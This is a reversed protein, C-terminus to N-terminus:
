LSDLRGFPSCAPSMSASSRTRRLPNVNSIRSCVSLVFSSLRVRSTAAKAKLNEPPIAPEVAASGFRIPVISANVSIGSLIAWRLIQDKVIASSVFVVHARAVVTALWDAFIEYNRHGVLQPLEIPIIDHVLVSFRIGDESLRGFLDRYNRTWVVGTFLVHDGRRPALGTGGSRAQSPHRGVKEALISITEWPSIAVLTGGDDSLVCPLDSATDADLSAFFLEVTVKGVGTLSEHAQLWELTDGIFFWNAAAPDIDRLAHRPEPQITTKPSDSTPHTAPELRRRRMTQWARWRGLHQLTVTRWALKVARGLTRALRPYRSGLRRPFKTLRWSTSSLVAQLRQESRATAARLAGIEDGQRVLAAQLAALQKDREALTTQHRAVLEDRDTAARQRAEALLREAEELRSAAAQALQTAEAARREAAVGQAEIDHAQTEARVRLDMETDLDSRHVYVSNPLPPLDGDSALAIIYPARSLHNSAEVHTAGRRDFVRPAIDQASSLTLSGIIARQVALNAHKFHRHLLAEFEAKTLELVHYPNPPTGPSSYIDRDPSSMILLGGPRLVRHLEGIFTEHELIHELTEFSVAVDVSGDALPLARADGQEYRLHPQRFESRAVAVAAADIEIGIASRAVQALLATGYGEGSAVDLVDRDRCFDRALLYRHYHEIEVQHGAVAGTLREGSFPLPKAAAEWRILEGM